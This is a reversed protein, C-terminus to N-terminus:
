FYVCSRGYEDVLLPSLLTVQAIEKYTPKKHLYAPPFHTNAKRDSKRKNFVPRATSYSFEKRQATAMFWQRMEQQLVAVLSPGSQISGDMVWKTQVHEVVAGGLLNESTLRWHLWLSFRCPIEDEALLLHGPPLVPNFSWQWLKHPTTTRNRKFNSTERMWLANQQQLKLKQTTVTCSASTQIM